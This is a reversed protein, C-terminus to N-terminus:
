LLVKKAGSTERRSPLLAFDKYLNSYLKKTINFGMIETKLNM